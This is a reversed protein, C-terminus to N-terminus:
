EAGKPDRLQAVLWGGMACSGLWVLFAPSDGLTALIIGPLLAAIAVFRRLNQRVVVPLKAVRRRKPDGHWLWAILAISTLIAALLLLNMM